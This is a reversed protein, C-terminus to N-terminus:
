ADAGLRLFVAKMGQVRNIYARVDHDGCRQHAVLKLGHRAYREGAGAGCLHIVAALDQRQRLTAKTIRARGLAQAVRRDLYASTLEAAHSAIVRTYLGNFWCSKFDNWPGDEVVVHDHICYRRAEIFTGDTIQYMGVASSAPRYVEFPQYTLSWRWYTRAVPNGSAEIQALAALFAPTITSTSHKEFVSEYTDWTEHPMKHLVGSVPFFLESPKRVVQYVGNLVFWITVFVAALVLLQMSAPARSFRRM